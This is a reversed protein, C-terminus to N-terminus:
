GEEVPLPCNDLISGANDIVTVAITGNSTYKRLALCEYRFGATESAFILLRQPCEGCCPVIVKYIRKTM